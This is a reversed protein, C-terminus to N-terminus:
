RNAHAASAAGSWSSVNVNCGRANTGIGIRSVAADPQNSSTKRVWADPVCSGRLLRNKGGGGKQQTCLVSEAVGGKKTLALLQALSSKHDEM